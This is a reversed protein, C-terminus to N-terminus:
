RVGAGGLTWQQNDWCKIQSPQRFIDWSKGLHMRMLGVISGSVHTIITAFWSSLGLFFPEYM